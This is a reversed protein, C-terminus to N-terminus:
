LSALEKFHRQVALDISLDFVTKKEKLWGFYSLLHFFNRWPHKREKSCQTFSISFTQFSLSIQMKLSWIPIPYECTFLSSSDVLQTIM